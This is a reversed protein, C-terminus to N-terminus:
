PSLSQPAAIASEHYPQHAQYMELLKQNRDALEKQDSALALDRARQATAIAEAFEGAEAYAAALTGVLMPNAYRTLACAREALQVAETGNRVAPNANAARIWALNNLAEPNDPQQQLGQRYEDVAGALDGQQVLASALSFRAEAYDPKLRLAQRLHEVAQATDGKQSLVSGLAHQAVPDTPNQRVVESLVTAAEQFDRGKALVKAYLVQIEPFGPKLRMAERCHAEAEAVNGAEALADALLCHVWPNDGTVALAHRFLAQSNRWHPVQRQTVVLCAGLALFSGTALLPKLRPWRSALDGLGWAAVVFLGISPLYTYRDAIAQEGVQVLGIVPVLMGLFWLWGVMLYRHRARWRWLLVTIGLLVLAAAAVPWDPWRDPRPYFCALDAPWLLKGIYRVYSVLANAVRESLPLAAAPMVAGGSRQALFTVACSAASLFFFPLKELLLRGPTSPQPNLTSPRFRQLPWYDLLLLVFPLTVLMPKSMLGLAFLGLSLLYFISSPPHPISGPRLIGPTRGQASSTPHQINSTRDLTRKPTTEARWQDRTAYQVYAWLTLLFFFGSLVDKRESIWAVSEVHLPHLAFLAAVLASRWPAATLREFLLFLLLTCALHLLLNTLHHGTPRMAYLQVDLMHSLWTMPHWNASHASSFAWAVGRATLGAQVPPNATVYAADDLAVFGCRTVPWWALGTVVCLLLGILLKQRAPKLNM